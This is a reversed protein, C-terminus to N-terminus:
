NEVCYYVLKATFCFYQSVATATFLHMLTNYIM